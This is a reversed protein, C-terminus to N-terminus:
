SFPSLNDNDMHIYGKEKKSFRVNIIGASQLEKIDRIITKHSMKIFNTIEAFEIVTSYIIIHFIVLQRSTKSIM